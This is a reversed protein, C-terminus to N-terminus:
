HLRPPVGRTQGRQTVAYRMGDGIREALATIRAATESPLVDRATQGFLELWVSFMGPMVQPNEVHVRMPNGDYGRDLGVANRWFAAIKAEHARWEPGDDPAIARAFVPGLTAHARIRQYFAAVLRDIEDATMPFKQVPTASTM